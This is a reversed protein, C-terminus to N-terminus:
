HKQRTSRMNSTQEPTSFKALWSYVQLQSIPKMLWVCRFCDGLLRWWEPSMRIRSWPELSLDLTSMWEELRKCIFRWFSRMCRGLSVILMGWISPMRIVLTKFM